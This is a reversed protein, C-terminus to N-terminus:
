EISLNQKKNTELINATAQQIMHIIAAMFDKDHLEM